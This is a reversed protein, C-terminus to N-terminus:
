IKEVGITVSEGNVNWERLAEILFQLNRMAVILMAASCFLATRDGSAYLTPSFGMILRSAFGVALIFLQFLTEMSAGHILYVTLATFLLVIIYVAIQVAVELESFYGQGAVQRNASLVAFLNRFRPINVKYLLFDFFYAFSLYSVFPVASVLTGFVRKRTVPKKHNIALYTVLLVLSMLSFVHCVREHGGALYYHGTEIFGMAAKSMLSMGPFEPFYNRIEELNRNDNGPCLLSFCVSSVSLVIMFINYLGAKKKKYVFYFTFCIYTGLIIAAMLEMNSAYILCIPCLLKEWLSNSEDRYFHMLPRLSVLGLTLTWLYFATTIIWGASYLSFFPVVWMLVFFIIQASMREGNISFMDGVNWILLLIMLINVIRWVWPSLMVFPYLVAEVVLRSSWTEYHYRLFEWLPTETYLRRYLADDDTGPHIWIQAVLLVITAVAFFIFQYKRSKSEKWQLSLTKVM